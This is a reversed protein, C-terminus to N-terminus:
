QARPRRKKKRIHRISTSNPTFWLVHDPIMWGDTLYVNNKFQVAVIKRDVQVVVGILWDRIREAEDNEHDCYVEVQDTVAYIDERDPAKTFNIDVM